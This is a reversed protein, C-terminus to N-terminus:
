ILESVSDAVKELFVRDEESFPSLHHSDIDLQAVLKGDKFIPVVIESKVEPSCSLYNKEESVDQVVFSEEREAAQGCIGKGFPIHIHETPEGAFPGLVLEKEKQPNVLYFGVWNYHEVREKLLNCIAKLKEERKQDSEVIQKVEELLKSFMDKRRLNDWSELARRLHPITISGGVVLGVALVEELEQHSVGEEYCRIIHYSICHDCRLVLSAVLGLMEKTEAPHPPKIFLM